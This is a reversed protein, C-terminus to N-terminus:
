PWQAEAAEFGRYWRAYEAYEWFDLCNGRFDLSVEIEMTQCQPIPGFSDNRLCSHVASRPPTPHCVGTSRRRESIPIKRTMDIEGRSASVGSRIVLSM